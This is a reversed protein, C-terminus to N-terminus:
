ESYIKIKSLGDLISREEHPKIKGHELIYNYAPSKRRRTTAELLEVAVRGAHQGTIRGIATRFMGAEWARLFRQESEWSAQAAAVCSPIDFDIWNM